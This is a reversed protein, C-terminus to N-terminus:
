VNNHQYHYTGNKCANQYYDTDAYRQSDSDTNHHKESNGDANTPLGM